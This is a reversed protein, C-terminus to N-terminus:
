CVKVLLIRSRKLSKVERDIIEIPEEVFRLTKDVKIEDLPVHLSTDALCKKLNSVHFTDHVGSLEEPLRLRYAVHGIRELIEFPVVYRLALKGKKGFRIVGKWPSVKLMVRDGVEFELPKCRNDAYSKQRDRAAKLKEKILVVKDTTEQVLEPGILSSEGIEAWLVPSRCKRGYLAEFPACRISSHYSNNYSFEALPLHVDWSSTGLAKQVTQWCRSTFRGDRDSIISVPVGHRAVIEDIYIKALRKGYVIAEHLSESLINEQKFAESYAAQIKERMGTKSPHYRIECEYDSFLEIWRRQCMNLEKQDFIHQFSKHDTYIVSKTGYLYHRWTKLAFVVSGVELDHTTYNKEHIKLQRSAYAIVKGRQMLVCGLGQNSADCYVVFDEVGDPLSLIPADCLNNKLTQFDEEQEIGWVYKQNKQTLSTLPKAIKSFNAIFRRYYSDLGLFSRIESPTTPTKWNKVAEIKSPDVHIGNEHDEKTKSYILIDDIFVIVFKDLYLKCVWNMLDMFVAPANTLGFPMVTFEFHGYRTRFATKPIDDEHVRLQHYVSRLDIKSFYCSGQLQDFLDDIRSLPYRNKVTLKNLEGQRSDQFKSSMIADGIPALRYPSKAIPTAGPVLDIHFEVVKEHCVIVVKHQSLWDMGVIVDFSGHGLPILNLSFLSSGLELKCDRIIRDVEVKKGDAVEIMYSPNVISPKVNLLPAFKTSIFSFHVGSDFLVIVFHDNLSFTGTVFNPDQIAEMANVNVNFARGRVQNGSSRTNRNGELALRPNNSMRVASVPTVQRIPARCDKIFHGPKQCNFCLRVLSEEVVKRKDNGKTLTGCSVAEDTLIGARLIASQITTPQTARLMGRIELALGAIYRKIRSSEPTVLHPVLKALEHFQDTYGAHNAGVMEKQNEAYGSNDIVNEMNEIWRTLAIAGGKGDYEKPNCAMFGKYTFGNNGGNGCNGGNRGNANNVNNTVQTVIQPLITQLQQTIIAAIDPNENNNNNPGNSTFSYDPVDEAPNPRSGSECTDELEVHKPKSSATSEPDSDVKNRELEEEDEMLWGNMNGELQPLQHPAFANM